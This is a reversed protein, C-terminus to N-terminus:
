LSYIDRRPQQQGRLILHFAGSIERKPCTMRAPRGSIGCKGLFHAQLSVSGSQFNDQLRSIEFYTGKLLSISPPNAFVMGVLFLVPRFIENPTAEEDHFTVPTKLFFVYKAKRPLARDVKCSLFPTRQKTAPAQHEARAPHANQSPLRPGPRPTRLIARSAHFGHFWWVVMVINPFFSPLQFSVLGTAPTQACRLACGFGLVQCKQASNKSCSTRLCTLKEHSANLM